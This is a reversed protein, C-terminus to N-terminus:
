PRPPERHAALYREALHAAEEGTPPQHEKVWTRVDPRLVRLYQELILTEAMEEKTKTEPRMWRRYLGKLRNYTERATEGVPVVSSRFRQRYTEETVDYKALVAAKVDEYIHSRQEDMGAYAELAKGTLLTVVPAAWEEQSWGWTRAIREFRIFFSEVDEGESFTPIKAGEYRSSPQM